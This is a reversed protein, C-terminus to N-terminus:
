IYTCKPFFKGCGNQFNDQLWVVILNYGM